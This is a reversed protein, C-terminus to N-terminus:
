AKDSLRRLCKAIDEPSFGKAALLRAAKTMREMPVEDSGQLAEDVIRCAIAADDRERWAEDVASAALAQPLGRQMLRRLAKIPGIRDDEALQRAWRSAVAADGLIGEDLLRAAADDIEAADYGKKALHNRVESETRTRSSLYRVADKIASSDPM